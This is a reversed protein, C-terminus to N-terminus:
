SRRNRRENARAHTGARANRLRTMMRRRLVARIEARRERRSPDSCACDLDDHASLLFMLATPEDVADDTWAHTGDGAPKDSVPHWSRLGTDIAVAALLVLPIEAPARYRTQGMTFLVSLLVIAPFALLPYIPIGRRRAIVAGAVRSVSATGLVHLIRIPDGLIAYRRNRDLQMQQFPRFVGFTRGVRAAMVVPVRSANDRM